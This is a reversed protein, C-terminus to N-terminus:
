KFTQKKASFKEGFHIVDRLPILIHFFKKKKKEYKSTERMIKKWIKKKM